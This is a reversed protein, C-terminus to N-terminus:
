AADQPLLTDQLTRRLFKGSANRPLPSDLIWLHRPVKFRAVLPELHRRLDDATVAAEPRLVVAAGVEEGLREDPVGFVCAEAVAPHRFLALEVEACYVNEGGRLVMDKKRDVIYLFGDEDYHAIDGTRLWGDAITAATDDLRNIYGKIVGAGKILVEGRQGIAPSLGADDVLRAEFTPLVRGCSGSRASFYAGAIAAIVGCAETMGYGSSPRAQSGLADIRAVLDPTTQAGGGAIGQLSSLDRTQADPHNLLERAMTPVGSLGTVREIEILQLAEGADWKYMLVLAGGAGTVAFAQGLATVHFLPTTVLSM